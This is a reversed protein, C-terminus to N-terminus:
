QKIVRLSIYFVEIKQKFFLDIDASYYLDKYVKAPVALWRRRQGDRFEMELVGSSPDYSMSQFLDTSIKHEKM